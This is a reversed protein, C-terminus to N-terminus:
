IRKDIFSYISVQDAAKTSENAYGNVLKGVSEVLSNTFNQDIHKENSHVSNPLATSEDEEVIGNLIQEGKRFKEECIGNLKAHIVKGNELCKTESLVEDALCFYM